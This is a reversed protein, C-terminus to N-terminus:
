SSQIFIFSIIMQVMLVCNCCLTPIIVFRYAFIILQLISNLSDTNLEVTEGNQSFQCLRWGISGNKADIISAVYIIITTDTSWYICMDNQECNIDKSHYQNQIIDWVVIQVPVAPDQSISTFLGWQGHYDVMFLNSPIQMTRRLKADKRTYVKVMSHDLDTIVIFRNSIRYVYNNGINLWAINPYADMTVPLNYDSNFASQENDKNLLTAADELVILLRSRKDKQDQRVYILLNTATRSSINTFRKYEEARSPLLIHNSRNHRWNQETVYRRRYADYWDFGNLLISSEMPIADIPFRDRAILYVFDWEQDRNFSGLYQRHYL